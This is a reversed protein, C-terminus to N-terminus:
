KYIIVLLTVKRLQTEQPPVPPRATRSPSIVAGLM